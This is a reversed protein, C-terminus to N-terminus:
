GFINQHTGNGFVSDILYTFERYASTESLESLAEKLGRYHWEHSERDKVHFMEWLSDGVKIYDRAIARMNSLKDGLAVIKSDLSAQSLRRIAEEKRKRWSQEPTLDPDSVDSEAKVLDAVRPGFAERIEELSVDADEVTDHLVAAALVEQDSTITSVITMAELPHIIYPFNKGRRRTGEHSRVAFIIARDLFETNMEGNTM